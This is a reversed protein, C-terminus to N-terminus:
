VTRNKLNYVFALIEAVAKYLEPPVEQGVDIVSYLTRALQKDEVIEINHEKGIDKIRAAMLDAGKAVMYPASAKIKDYKLAVAYHTPNTIIVDADPIQQMMRRMSIERMKGRIKSKIKPDGETQKYEDKVEQKTMKLNKTHSYRQFAYDALAIVIYWQGVKVAMNITVDAIYVMGNVIGMDVLLMVNKLEYRLDSYVIYTILTIKALSKFLNVVAEKSFLRKFGKIPNLKSFKPKLPKLTPNWGVQILNSIIGIFLAVVFIPGSIIIVETFVFVILRNMYRPDSIQDIESIMTISYNYLEMIRTVMFGGFIKLALFLVIFLAATPIEISKAVQGEKRAKEKKQSTPKETKDDSAFFQLDLFLLYKNETM